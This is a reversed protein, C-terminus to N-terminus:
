GHARPVRVGRLADIVGFADLVVLLLVLIVVVNLITKIQGQMPVFRNICYLVVGVSVLAIILTILPMELGHAEEDGRAVHAGQRGGRVGHQNAM